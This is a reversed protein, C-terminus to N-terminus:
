RGRGTVPCRRRSGGRRQDALMRALERVLFPNGGTESYVEGVQDPLTPLGAALLMEGVASAPLGHLNVRAAPIPAM